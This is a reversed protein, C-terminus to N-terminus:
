HSEEPTLVPLVTNEKLDYNLTRSLNGSKYCAGLATLIATLDLQM